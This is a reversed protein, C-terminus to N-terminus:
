WYRRTDVLDWGEEGQAAQNIIEVGVDLTTIEGFHDVRFLCRRHSHNEVRFSGDRGFLGVDVIEVGGPQIHYTAGQDYPRETHGCLLAASTTHM